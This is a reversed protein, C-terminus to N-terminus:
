VLEQSLIKDLQPIDILRSNPEPGKLVTCIIKSKEALYKELVAFNKARDFGAIYCKTARVPKLVEKPIPKIKELPVIESNGFDFYLITASKANVELCVSRYWSNDESFLGLCMEGVDPVYGPLLKDSCGLDAVLNLLSQFTEADKENDFHCATAYGSKHLGISNLVLIQMQEGTPIPNRQLDEFYHRDARKANKTSEMPSQPPSPPMSPLQEAKAAKTPEPATEVVEPINKAPQLEVATATFMLPLMRTMLSQPEVTLDLLDLTSCDTDFFEVKMEVKQEYLKRLLQLAVTNPPVAISPINCINKIKARWQSVPLYELLRCPMRLSSGPVRHVSGTDINHVVYRNSAEARYCVRNPCVVLVISGIPISSSQDFPLCRSDLSKFLDGYHKTKVSSVCVEQYNVLHTIYVMSGHQVPDRWYRHGLETMRGLFTCARVTCVQENHAFVTAQAVRQKNKDSEQANEQEFKITLDHGHKDWIEKLSCTNGDALVVAFVRLPHGVIESPIRRVEKTISFSGEDIHYVLFQSTKEICDLLIARRFGAKTRAALVKPYSEIIPQGPNDLLNANLDDNINSLAKIQLLAVQPEKLGTNHQFVNVMTVEPNNALLQLPLSLPLTINPKLQVQEAGDPTQTGLLRLTLLKNIQVSANTPLKVRFACANIEAMRPGSLFIDDMGCVVIVGYDIFRVEACEPQAKLALVEGRYMKKDHVVVVLNGIALNQYSCPKKNQMARNITETLCETNAVDVVWISGDKELYTVRCDFFESEPPKAYERWATSLKAVPEAETPLNSSSDSNATAAAISLQQPTKSEIDENKPMVTCFYKHRQWDKRQCVDNCYPEGCRQCMLMAAKGCITCPMKNSDANM